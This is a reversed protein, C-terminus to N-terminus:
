NGLKNHYVVKELKPIRSELSELKDQDYFFKADALRARIVRANGSSIEKGGDTAELQSVVLFKNTLKGKKDKLAFYKQHHQMTLILCEEPISLFDEDFESEYVVPWETLATVEEVLDEPMIIQVGLAKAKEELQEVMRNRRADFFPMVYGPCILQKSYSAAEEIEIPKSSHFRHGQTTRGAKRGLLEVEIIQSGYIAVLSKVPRVFEVTTGDELQYSMMKPIPLKHIAENLAEQLGEKLHVGPKVGVYYFQDQKGDNEIVLDEIEATLGLAKLKKQLVPTAKGDKGRGVRVPVLRQSFKKDCTKELVDSIHVAIRRPSGFPTLVHGGKDFFGQKNLGSEVEKAFAESIARLAKPPLEETQIEVLLSTM